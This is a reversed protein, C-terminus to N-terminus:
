RIPKKSHHCIILFYALIADDYPKPTILTLAKEISFSDSAFVHLQQLAVLFATPVTTGCSNTRSNWLQPVITVVGLSSGHYLSSM